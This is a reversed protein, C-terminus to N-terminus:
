AALPLAEDAPLANARWDEYLANIAAKRHETQIRRAEPLLWSVGNDEWEGRLGYKRLCSWCLAYDGRTHGHCGETGSAACIRSMSAMQRQIAEPTPTWTNQTADKSVYEVFQSFNHMKARFDARQLLQYASVLAIGLKLAVYKAANTGRRLAEIAYDVAQQQRSTFAKHIVDFGRRAALFLSFLAKFETPRNVLVDRFFQYGQRKADDPLDDPDIFAYQNKYWLAGM